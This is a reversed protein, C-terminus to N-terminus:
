RSKGVLSLEVLGKKTQPFISAYPVLGQEIPSDLM